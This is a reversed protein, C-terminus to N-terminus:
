CFEIGPRDCIDIVSAHARKLICLLRADEPQLAPGSDLRGQRDLWRWSVDIRSADIVISVAVRWRGAVAMDGGRVVLISCRGNNPM